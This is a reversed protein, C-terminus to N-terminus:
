ARAGERAAAVRPSMWGQTALTLSTAGRRVTASCWSWSRPACAAVIIGATLASTMTAAPRPMCSSPVRPSM